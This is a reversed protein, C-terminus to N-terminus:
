IFLRINM